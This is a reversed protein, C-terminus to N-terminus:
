NGFDEHSSGVAQLELGLPDSARRWGRSADCTTCLCAFLVGMLMKKLDELQFLETQLTSTARAYTRSNADGPRLHFSLHPAWLGLGLSDQAKTVLWDLWGFFELQM